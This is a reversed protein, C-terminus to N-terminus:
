LNHQTSNARLGYTGHSAQLQHSLVPHVNLCTWDQSIHSKKQTIVKSGFNRWDPWSKTLVISYESVREECDKKSRQRDKQLPKRPPESLLSDAQFAPSVPNTGPNPLSWPSLFLQGSWYKKDPSNWLCLLRSPQLEHPQLSNYMASGSVSESKVELSWVQMM